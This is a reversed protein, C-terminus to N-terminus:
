ENDRLFDDNILNPESLPAELPEDMLAPAEIVPEDGRPLFVFAYLLGAIVAGIIPGVWWVYWDAWKGSIIAPAIARAPNMAGGSIPGGILIDVFVTLGIGFGAVRNARPDVATGFVAMVLFFTLIAELGIAQGVSIVQTNVAPVGLSIGANGWIREPLVVVIALCAGLGGIIQGLIYLVGSIPSIRRAVMMAVTVAPNFHGGSIHGLASIAIALAVGHALAIYLVSFAGNNGATAVSMIGVFFFFFTGVVEALVKQWDQQEITITM